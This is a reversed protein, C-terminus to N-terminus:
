GASELRPSPAGFPLDLEQDPDRLDRLEFDEVVLTGAAAPWFIAWLWNGMAEGAYAARDDETDTHWLPWEHGRYRVRAHPATEEFVATGPDIGTLGAYSAGLGIGPEESVIVMDGPGGLPAPGSLAVACARAGTRDDGADAFGAVLWGDPLPWPLWVPVRTGQLLARLGEESPSRAPRRPYVDGHVACRWASSWANPATIEAGCRPCTPERHM